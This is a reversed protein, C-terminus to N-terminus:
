LHKLNLKAGRRAASVCPAVDVPAIKAAYAPPLLHPAISDFRRFVTRLWDEILLRVMPDLGLDRNIVAEAPTIGRNLEAEKAALHNRALSLLPPIGIFAAGLRRLENELESGDFMHTRPSRAPNRVVVYNVTAGLQAVTTDLDSMVELDDAAFVLATIRGGIEAFTAPFRIMDWAKLITPSLHARPDILSVPTTTVLRLTKIVEGEPEEGLAVLQVTDPYLRVFTQHDQDLDFGRWEIGRQELWGALAAVCTSKGLNGRKVVPIILSHDFDSKM